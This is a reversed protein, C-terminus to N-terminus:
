EKNTQRTCLPESLEKAKDLYWKEKKLDTEVSNSPKHGLRMRYKFATMECFQKAAKTGWIKEMLDITEIPFQRYHDAKVFDYDQSSNKSRQFQERFWAVNFLVDEVQKQTLEEAMMSDLKIKSKILLGKEGKYVQGLLGHLVPNSTDASEIWDYNVYNQYETPSLAGLIHHPKSVDIVGSDLMAKIIAPRVADLELLNKNAYDIFFSEFSIAIKDVYHSIERYNKCFDIYSEGHVVGIKIGAHHKCKWSRIAELNKASNDRWDPLIYETPKLLEVYHKYNECDAKNGDNDYGYPRGLEYASNDLIVTRGQELSEKFFNFYNGHEDFLHVLAYDYDNFEKSKELLALPAEHSIRFM